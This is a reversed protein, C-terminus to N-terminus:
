RKFAGKIGGSMQQITPEADPAIFAVDKGLEISFPTPLFSHGSVTDAFLGGSLIYGEVLGTTEEFQLDEVKGLDKGETTQLRLGRITKKDGLVKQIEPIESSRVVNDRSGLIASDPGIAQLSSWRAVRVGKFLGESVILGLVQKGAQDVVLDKIRGLEQGGERAVVTRGVVESAKM